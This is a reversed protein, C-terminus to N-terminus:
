PISKIKREIDSIQTVAQLGMLLDNYFNFWYRIHKLNTPSFGKIDPFEKKLDASLIKLFSDGWSYQKQKEVIEKGLNWYLDLLEYNVKIAAKLQSSRVKEKLISIFKKYEDDKMISLDNKDM